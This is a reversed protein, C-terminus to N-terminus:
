PGAPTTRIVGIRTDRAGVEFCTNISDAWLSQNPLPYSSNNPSESLHSALINYQNPLHYPSNAERSFMIANINNLNINLLIKCMTSVIWKKPSRGM